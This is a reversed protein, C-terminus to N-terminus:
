QVMNITAQMMSNATTVTKANASYAEQAVILQSFETAIDVNSQEISSTVLSGAGNTGAAQTLAPGSNVTATFASGNQRQLADPAAFTALPVQAITRTQGNDYNVVVDGNSQMTISSFNGPPVGDQSVGRLAYTSGAFQTLGSTGGITGLNLAITQHGGGPAPYLTNLTLTGAAGSTSVTTGGQTVSALTGNAGFSVTGSGITNGAEDTVTVNWNNSGAGASTFSLTLQHSQGQADYVSVNSTIPDQVSPTVPDPNGAPPLNASLTVNGTAVPQYISENIQIPALTNTDIQGNTGMPWGNLYDGASNVLYGSSNLQFDGARTYYPQPSFTPGTATQGDAQSVAFFGQGSIALALPNDSQSITGQVTNVYSPVAVVAGPENQTATSTTLYDLFSTDVRKFGTTQSNAINDGINGFAASQSSLGSIATDMAGFLSMGAEKEQRAAIGAAPLTGPGTRRLVVPATRGAGPLAHRAAGAARCLRGPGAAHRPMQRWAAFPGGSANAADHGRGDGGSQEGHRNRVRRLGDQPPRTEGVGEGGEANGHRRM